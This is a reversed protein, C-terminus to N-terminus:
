PRLEEKLTTFNEIVYYHQKGKYKYGILAQGTYEIPVTKPNPNKQLELEGSENPLYREIAQFYITDGKEFDNSISNDAKQHSAKIAYHKVGIWVDEFQLKSSPKKAVMKFEFVVSRGSEMRGGVVNQQTTSITKFPTSFFIGFLFLLIFGLFKM